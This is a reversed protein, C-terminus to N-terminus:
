TTSRSHERPFSSPYRKRKAQKLSYRRLDAFSKRRVSITSEKDAVYVEAIEAGDVSGTNKIKFSVTVTDTDKMKDKSLKIDSYEFTTYSLGFGFPFEVDIDAADYYRYGIYVSERHESTVPGGPFNGYTPNDEFARPYTESTKGSPNVKGTLINAVAIGGAQGGLGSNLLGKVNKLWPM